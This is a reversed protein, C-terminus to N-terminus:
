GAYQAGIYEPDPVQVLLHFDTTGDCAPLPDYTGFVDATTATSKTDKALGVVLTGTFLSGTPKVGIWGVLRGSANIAAAPTVTIYDTALFTTSADGFTPTDAHVVGAADAGLTLTLGVVLTSGVQFTLDGGTTISDGVAVGADVITGAFGPFIYALTGADAEAELIAFPLRIYSPKVSQAVNDQFEKIVYAATDVRIPLGLVDTTGVTAGTVNANFTISDIVKFAKVGTFSTSSSSKEVMTRGYQDKGTVTMIATTTWAAVLGRPVDLYFSNGAPLLAGNLLAEVGSAVSQSACIGDADATVPAGLNILMPVLRQANLRKQIQGNEPYTMLGSEKGLYNLNLYGRSGAVLAAGTRNTVTIATDGFSLGIDRPRELKSGNLALYHGVANEFDGDSTGAPYNLTFTGADAVDVGILVEITVHKM